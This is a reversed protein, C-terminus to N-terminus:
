AHASHISSFTRCLLVAYLLTEPIIQHSRGAHVKFFSHNFTLENEKLRIFGICATSFKIEM